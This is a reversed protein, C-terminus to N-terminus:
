KQTKPEGDDDDDDEGKRNRASEDKWGGGFGGRNDQGQYKQDDDGEFTGLDTPGGESARKRPSPLLVKDILGYRVAEESSLYFDRKLDNQIREVSQGTMKSLEFELNDNSRKLNAVELGIDSAQGRFPTDMGTRQLLFRSNPMASRKGKTGAGALLAGMGSCLGLNVTSIEMTQKMQNILDYVALGPRMISGPVNFYLSIPGEPDEKRLYLLISIINNAESEDIFKGILMTRERYMRSYIDIFQAYDSGPPKYPVMPTTSPMKIPQRKVYLQTSSSVVRSNSTTAHQPVSFAAVSSSGIMVHQFIAACLLSLSSVLRM